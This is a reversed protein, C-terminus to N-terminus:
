RGRTIARAIIVRQVESTGEYLRFLRADRYFREVPVSRMYGAGGHIQVARDAVRGVMESCYLKAASPALRQDTGADYERAAELVMARGAYIETHCDALMGQVLQFDAIRTEGQRSSTAWRISEDLLRQALGVCIAAIHLRGKALSTMAAAFGVGEQGGVLTSGDVRVGDFFVEATSSGRQGMKHDNPGIRVGAADAPVVFVSIGKTTGREGSTRAFVMFVDARTANTIYHKAGDIVWDDGDPRATTRMWSPDSGAEPESLAFSAVVEGSAFRPLYHQKQEATGNKAVVQGAIGNNTGFLSRFSPTTWGLEIALRVEESMSLGLGDYDEPIAYGFLGMAKAQERIGSPIDDTEEIEAEAPVVVERVFERVTTLVSEFEAAEM